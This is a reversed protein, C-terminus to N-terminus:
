KEIGGKNDVTPKLEPPVIDETLFRMAESVIYSTKADIFISSRGIGLRLLYDNADSKKQHLSIVLKNQTNPLDLEYNNVQEYDKFIDYRPRRASEKYRNLFDKRDTQM